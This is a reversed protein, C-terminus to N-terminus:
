ACGKRGREGNEWVYGPGPQGAAVLEAMTMYPEVLTPEESQDEDEPAPLNWTPVASRNWEHNPVSRM